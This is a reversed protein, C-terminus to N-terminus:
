RPCPPIVIRAGVPVQNINHIIGPNANMIQVAFSYQEQYTRLHPCMKRAIALLGERPQVVYIRYPTPSPAITPVPTSTPMPTSTPHAVPLPTPTVVPVPTTPVTPTATAVPTPSQVSRGVLSHAVWGVGWALAGLLVLAVVLILIHGPRLKFV